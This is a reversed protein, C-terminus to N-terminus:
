HNELALLERHTSAGAIRARLRKRALRIRTRVTNTPVGSRTAIEDLSTGFVEHLVFASAQADPLGALLDSLLTRRRADVTDEWPARPSTVLPSELRMALELRDRYRRLARRRAFASRRVVGLSFRLFSSEWRFLPLAALIEMLGEQLVDEAEEASPLARVLYRRLPETLHEVLLRCARGDGRQAEFALGALPDRDAARLIPNEFIGSRRPVLEATKVESPAESSFRSRSSPTGSSAGGDRGRV